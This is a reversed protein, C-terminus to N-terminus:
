INGFDAPGFRSGIIRRAFARLIEKVQERTPTNALDIRLEVAGATTPAATGVAIADEFFGKGDSTAETGPTLQFSVSAM